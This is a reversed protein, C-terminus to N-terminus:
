KARDHAAQELFETPSNFNKLSVKLTDKYRKKQSGKSHTGEQLEGYFVKMPMRTVHGTWRLQALKILTHVSQM